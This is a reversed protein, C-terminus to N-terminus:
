KVVCFSGKHVKDKQRVLYYYIGTALNKVECTIVPFHPDILEHVEKIREGTANFLNVIVQEPEHLDVQIRLLDRTPNPFIRFGAAVAGPGSITPAPTPGANAGGNGSTGGSGGNGGNEGATAIPTPAPSATVAPVPTPTFNFAQTSITLANDHAGAGLDYRAGYPNLVALNGKLNCCGGSGAPVLAQIFVRNQQDNVTCDTFQIGGFESTLGPNEGTICFVVAPFGNISQQATNTWTCRTMKVLARYAAKGPMYLGPGPLNEITCDDFEIFGGVGNATYIPSVQLGWGSTTTVYCNQFTISLNPSSANLQQPYILIGAHANNIFRCNRVVCNVLQQGPGDPEFDIGAQPEQGWTNQMVTNEILCSNASTVSIGQRYNNDCTAHDVHFNTCPTQGDFSGIFIGDGGSSSMTGGEITVNSCSLFYFVHRWQSYSYAGGTYDERHMTFTAGTANLTINTQHDANFLCDNTGHFEGRKAEVVVGSEFTITQNSTLFIPKVIWNSGMNSVVVQSAGTNIATQLATTADQANFGYDKAYVTVAQASLTGVWGAILSFFLVLLFHKQQNNHM